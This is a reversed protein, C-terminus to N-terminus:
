WTSSGSDKFLPEQQFPCSGTQHSPFLAVPSSSRSLRPSLTTPSCPVSSFALGSGLIPANSCSKCVRNSKKFFLLLIPAWVLPPRALGPYVCQLRHYKSLALFKIVSKQNTLMGAKSLSKEGLWQRIGTLLSLCSSWLNWALRFSRAYLFVCDWVNHLYYILFVNLVCTFLCLGPQTRPHHPVTDLLETEYTTNLM